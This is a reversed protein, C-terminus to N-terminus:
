GRTRLKADYAARLLSRVEEPQEDIVKALTQLEGRLGHLQDILSLVLPLAEEELGLTERLECVLRVRALDIEDYEHGTEGARPRVWGESVWIRLETVSVAGVTEVVQYENLKM